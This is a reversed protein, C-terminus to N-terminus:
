LRYPYTCFIVPIHRNFHCSEGTRSVSDDCSTCGNGGLSGGAMIIKTLRSAEAIDKVDKAMEYVDSTCVGTSLGIGSYDITIVNFTSALGDLFAPDWTDL